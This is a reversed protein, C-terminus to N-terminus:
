RLFHDLSRKPKTSKKQETNVLIKLKTHILLGFRHILPKYHVTAITALFLKKFITM